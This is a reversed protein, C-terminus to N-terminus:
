RSGKQGAVTRRTTIGARSGSDASKKVSPLSAPSAATSANSSSISYVCGPSVCPFSKSIREVLKASAALLAVDPEVHLLTDRQEVAVEVQEGVQDRTGDALDEGAM